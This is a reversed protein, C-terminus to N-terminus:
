VHSHLEHSCKLSAYHPKICRHQSEVNALTFGGNRVRIRHYRQNLLTCLHARQVAPAIPLETGATCVFFRVRVTSSKIIKHNAGAHHQNCTAISCSRSFTKSANPGVVQGPTRPARRKSKRSVTADFKGLVHQGRVRPSLAARPQEVALAARCSHPIGIEAHNYTHCFATLGDV